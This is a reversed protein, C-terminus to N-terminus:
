ARESTAKSSMDAYSSSSSFLINDKRESELTYSTTNTENLKTKHGKTKILDMLDSLIAPKAINDLEDNEGQLMKVVISMSPRLKTIDQVWLLANKLFRSAEEYDFDGNLSKDVFEVLQGQEYLEGAQLLLIGMGAMERLCKSGRARFREGLLSFSVLAFVFSFFFVVRVLVSLFSTVKMFTM